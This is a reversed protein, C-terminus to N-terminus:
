DLGDPLQKQLQNKRSEIARGLWVNPFIFGVAGLAFGIAVANLMGGASMM